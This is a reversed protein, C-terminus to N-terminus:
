GSQSQLYDRLIKMNSAVNILDPDLSGNLAVLYDNLYSVTLNIMGDFSIDSREEFQFRGPAATEYNEQIGVLSAVVEHVKYFKLHFTEGGSSNLWSTQWQSLIRFVTDVAGNFEDLSSYQTEVESRLNKSRSSNFSIDFSNQVIGHIQLIEDKLGDSIEEYLETLETSIDEYTQTIFNYLGTNNEIFDNTLIMVQSFDFKTDILLEEQSSFRQIQQNRFALLGAIAIMGVLVMVIIKLVLRRSIFRPLGLFRM